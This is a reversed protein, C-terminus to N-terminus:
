NDLGTVKRPKPRARTMYKHLAKALKANNEPANNYDMAYHSGEPAKTLTALKGMDTLMKLHRGPVDDNALGHICEKFARVDRAPLTNLANTINEPTFDGRQFTHWMGIVILERYTHGSSLPTTHRTEIAHDM